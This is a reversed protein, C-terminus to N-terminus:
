ARARLGEREPQAGGRVVAVRHAAREHRDEGGGAAGRVRARRDLEEVARERRERRGLLERRRPAGRRRPRQRARRRAVRGGEGAPHAVVGVAKAYADSRKRRPRV